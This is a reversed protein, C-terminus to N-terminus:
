QNIPNSKFKEIAKKTPSILKFYKKRITEATLSTKDRRIAARVFQESVEYEKSLTTVVDTNYSQYSQRKKTTKSM